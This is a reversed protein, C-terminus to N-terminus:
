KLLGYSIPCTDFVLTVRSGRNLIENSCFLLFILM